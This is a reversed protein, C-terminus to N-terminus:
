KQELAFFQSRGSDPWRRNQFHQDPSFCRRFISLTKDKNISLKLLSQWACCSSINRRPPGRVCLCLLPATVSLECLVGRTSVRIPTPRLPWSVVLCPASVVSPSPQAPVYFKLPWSNSRPHTALGSHRAGRRGLPWFGSPPPGAYVPSFPM